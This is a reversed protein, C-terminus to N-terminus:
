TVVIRKVVKTKNIKIMDKVQSSKTLVQWPSITSREVNRARLLDNLM